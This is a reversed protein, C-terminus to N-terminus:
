NIDPDIFAIKGNSKLWEEAEDTQPYANRLYTWYTHSHNMHKRHALEHVIIYDRVFIPVKILRWNLSINGNSSCSGWKSSQGRITLKQYSIRLKESWFRIREDLERVCILKQWRLALAAPNNGLEQGPFILAEDTEVVRLQHEDFRIHKWKGRLFVERKLRQKIRENENSHGAQKKLMARIWELNDNIFETIEKDSTWDPISVRVEQYKVALRMTKQKRNRVIKINAQDLDLDDFKM